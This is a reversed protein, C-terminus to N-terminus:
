RMLREVNWLKLRGDANKGQEGTALWKDDPSVALTQVDDGEGHFTQVLKGTAVNWVPVAGGWGVGTLLQGHAFFALQKRSGWREGSGVELVRKPQGTQTDFLGVRANDAIALQTGDPSFALGTAGLNGGSDDAVSTMDINKWQWSKLIAGTRADRLVIDLPALAVSNDGYLSTIAIFREDPSFALDCLDLPYGFQGAPPAKVTFLRRGTIVDWVSIDGIVDAAAALKGSPSIIHCQHYYVGYNKKNGLMLNAPMRSPVPLLNRGSVNWFNIASSDGVVMESDGIWFMSTVPEGVSSNIRKQIQLQPLTWLSIGTQTDAAALIHGDPSFALGEVAQGAQPYPRPITVARAPVYAYDHVAKVHLLGDAVLLALGTAASVALWKRIM